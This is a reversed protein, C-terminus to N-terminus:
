ASIFTSTQSPHAAHLLWTISPLIDAPLCISKGCRSLACHFVNLLARREAELHELTQLACYSRTAYEHAYLPALGLTQKNMLRANLCIFNQLFPSPLRDIYPLRQRFIRHDCRYRRAAYTAPPPPLLALRYPSAAPLRGSTSPPTPTADPLHPATPLATTATARFAHPLPAARPPSHATRLGCPLYWPEPPFRSACYPMCAFSAASHPRHRLPRPLAL